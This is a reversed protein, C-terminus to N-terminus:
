PERWLAEAQQLHERLVKNLEQARLIPLAHGAAEWEVYHANPIAEALARGSTVSAVVDEGGSLVLTPIDGLEPLRQCINHRGLSMAQQILIRPQDALDRGFLPSLTQALADLDLTRHEEATLIMRMFARRRMPRSGIRGGIAAWIM